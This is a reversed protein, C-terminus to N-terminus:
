KVKAKRDPLTGMLDAIRALGKLVESPYITGNASGIDTALNLAAKAKPHNTLGTAELMDRKLYRTKLMSERSYDEKITDGPGKFSVSYAGFRIKELVEAVTLRTRETKPKAM